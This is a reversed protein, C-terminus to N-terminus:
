RRSGAVQTSSPPISGMPVLKAGTWRYSVSAEGDTPNALADKTSYLGYTLTIRDDQQDTVSISGSTDSTDTGIFRNGVFFFAQQARGEPANRRVGVLVKLTQDPRFDRETLTAFGRRDLVAEAARLTLPADPNPAPVTTGTTTPTPATATGSTTPPPTTPTPTTPTTVTPTGAATKTASGTTDGGGCAALLLAVASLVLALAAFPLIHSRSASMQAPKPPTV